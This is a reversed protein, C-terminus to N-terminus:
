LVNEAFNYKFKEWGKLREEYQNIEREEETEMYRDTEFDMDNVKIFKDKGKKYLWWFIFCLPFIGVELYTQFFDSINFPAFTSWGQVLIIFTVFILVFWPGYPYTWNVYTLQHTKGQAKLGSRFRLSTIAISWWAFQNSVGVISQLWSWLTGAGIFSSGFCLGGALWTVFVLVYPVQFRNVRTFIKPLYGETGFTYALRSGAFLAHNCASIVSTLIVANMFSGSAKAGVMHFVITFPSTTVKGNSLNPTDYKVNMGIFFISFVYFIIIRWFVTKVVKPMTKTPNKQEGATLTISETGGYAFAASVFTKAFGKFGDVFPADKYSWYKFGIYEHMNNHGANVVVSIVFFILISIVKLLALWYEAEGYVRVHIVNLLLVFIWFILSIVWYHFDTWYEMVLQLATLDSAVSVADNFWYNSLIAFGFSESVYRRAYVSFSGSLPMYTAMEGLSLMTLYVVVGILMYCLLVSLPGGEALAKGTGLYLGTGIIGAISIMNIQRVSLSRSLNEKNRRDEGDDSGSKGAEVISVSSGSVVSRELDVSTKYILATSGSSQHHYTGLESM